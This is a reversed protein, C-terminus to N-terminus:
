IDFFKYQMEKWSNSLTKEIRLFFDPVLCRQPIIICVTCLRRKMCVTFMRRKMVNSLLLDSLNSVYKKELFKKRSLKKPHPKLYGAEDAMIRYYELIHIKNNELLKRGKWYSTNMKRMTKGILTEFYDVFNQVAKTYDDQLKPPLKWETLYQHVLPHLSYMQGRSTSKRGSKGSYVEEVELLHCRHLRQLTDSCVQNDQIGLVRQAMEMDFTSSQFVRMAVLASRHDGDLSDVAQAIIKSVGLGKTVHKDVRLNLALRQPTYKGSKLMESVVTIALPSLGCKKM